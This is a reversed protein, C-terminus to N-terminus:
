HAMDHRETHSDNSNFAHCHFTIVWLWVKPLTICNLQRSFWVVSKHGFFTQHLKVSLRWKTVAIVLEIYWRRKCKGRLTLHWPITMQFDKGDFCRKTHIPSSPALKYNKSSMLLLIKRRQTRVLDFPPYCGPGQNWKQLRTFRFGVELCQQLALILIIM